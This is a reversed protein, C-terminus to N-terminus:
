RQFPPKREFPYIRVSAPTGNWDRLSPPLIQVALVRSGRRFIMLGEAATEMIPETPEHVLTFERGAILAADPIDFSVGYREPERYTWGRSAFEARYFESLERFTHPARISVLFDPRLDYAVPDISVSVSHPDDPM